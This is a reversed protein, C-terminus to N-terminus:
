LKVVVDEVMNVVCEVKVVRAEVFKNQVDKKIVSNQENKKRTNRLDLKCYSGGLLAGALVTHFLKRPSASAQPNCISM